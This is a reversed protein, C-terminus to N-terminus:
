FLLQEVHADDDLIYWCSPVDKRIGCENGNVCFPCGSSCNEYKLCEQKILDLAFILMSQRSM